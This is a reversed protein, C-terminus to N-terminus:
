SVNIKAATLCNYGSRLFLLTSAKDLRLPLM